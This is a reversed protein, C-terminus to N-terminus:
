SRASRSLLRPGSGQRPRGSYGDDAAPKAASRRRQCQMSATELDRDVLLGGFEPFDARAEIEAGVRQFYESIETDFVGRQFGTTLGFFLDDAAEAAAAHDGSRLPGAIDGRAVANM